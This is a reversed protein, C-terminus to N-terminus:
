SSKYERLDIGYAKALSHLAALGRAVSLREEHRQRSRRWLIVGAVLAGIAGCAGSVIDLASTGHLYCLGCFGVNVAMLANLALLAAIEWPVPTVRKQLERQIRLLAERSPFPAQRRGPPLEHHSTQGNM